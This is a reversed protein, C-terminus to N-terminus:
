WWQQFYCHSRNNLNTKMRKCSLVFKVDMYFYIFFLKQPITKGVWSFLINSNLWYMFDFLSMCLKHQCQVKILFASLLLFLGSFEQVFEKHDNLTLIKHTQDYQCYIYDIECFFITHFLQSDKLSCVFFIVSESFFFYTTMLLLLFSFWMLFTVNTSFSEYFAQLFIIIIILSFNSVMAVICTFVSVCCM